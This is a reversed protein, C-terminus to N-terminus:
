GAVEALEEKPKRMPKTFPKKEKKEGSEAVAPKKFDNGKKFKTPDPEYVMESETVRLMRNDDIEMKMKWRQGPKMRVGNNPFFNFITYRRRWKMGNELTGKQKDNRHVKFTFSFPREKFNLKSVSACARIHQEEDPFPEPKVAVIEIASVQSTEKDFRLYFIYGKIGELIHPYKKAVWYIKKDPAKTFFAPFQGWKCTLTKTAPDYIGNVVGVLEYWFPKKVKEVEEVQQNAEAQQPRRKIKPALLVQPEGPKSEVAAVPEATVVKPTESAKKLGVLELKPKNPPTAVATPPKPPPNLKAAAEAARAAEMEAKTRRKRKTTEPETTM